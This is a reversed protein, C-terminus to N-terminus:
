LPSEVRAYATRVSSDERTQSLVKQSRSSINAKLSDVLTELASASSAKMAIGFTIKRQAYYKEVFTSGHNFPIIENDGRTEPIDLDDDIMTVKGYTSLPVSNYSWTTM